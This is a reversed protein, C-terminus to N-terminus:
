YQNPNVPIWQWNPPMPEGYPKLDETLLPGPFTDRLPKVNPVVGECRVCPDCVLLSTSGGATGAARAQTLKITTEAENWLTLNQERARARKEWAEGLWNNHFLVAGPQGYGGERGIPFLGRSLPFVYTAINVPDLFQQYAFWTNYVLQDDAKIGLDMRSQLIHLAEVQMRISLVNSKTFYWGTCFDSPELQMEWTHSLPMYLFPNSILAIDMDSLLVDYGALLSTLVMKSKMQTQKNFCPTRFGFTANGGGCSALTPDHFLDDLLMLHRGYGLDTLETFTEVDVCALLWNYINLRETFCIWNLVFDVYGMNAVGLMLLGDYGKVLENKEVFSRLAEVAELSVPSERNLMYNHAVGHSLLYERTQTSALWETDNLSSPTPAPSQLSNILASMWSTSPPTLTLSFSLRGDLVVFLLLALALAACLLTLVTSTRHSLGRGEDRGKGEKTREVGDYDAHTLLRSHGEESTSSLLGVEVDVSQGGEEAM